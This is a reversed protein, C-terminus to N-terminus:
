TGLISRIVLGVAALVSVSGAWIGIFWGFRKLNQKKMTVM